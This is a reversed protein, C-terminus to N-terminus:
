VNGVSRVLKKRLSLLLDGAGFGGSKSILNYTKGKFDFESLVTGNEVEEIMDLALLEMENIFGLLTDGGTVMLSHELGMEVFRRLVYGLNESIIIRAIDLSMGYKEKAYDMTKEQGTIDNTDIITMPNNKVQEFLDLIMKEGDLSTWYTKRIKQEHNLRIRQFGNEEAVDLQKQTIPNVSGCVVLLGDTQAFTKKEDKSLQLVDPLISAFGACGAMLQLQNQAKLQQVIAILEEQTTVDFSVIGQHEGITEFKGDFIEKVPIQSQQKIVGKVSPKTVPDFPDKGFVSENVPIGDILHIGNKTIRNMKPFAPIFMLNQKNDAEYVASLESGINGRLASDTKKFITSIGQKRGAEVIQHVVSYAKESELHRTESDIVLVQTENPVEKLTSGIQVKTTIGQSSFQIGTDLAGTLDDAIILLKVVIKEKAVLLEIM